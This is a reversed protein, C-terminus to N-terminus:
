FSLSPQCTAVSPRVPSSPQVLRARANGIFRGMGDAAIETIGFQPCVMLRSAGSRNLPMMPSKMAWTSAPRQGVRSGRAMDAEMVPMRQHHLCPGPMCRSSKILTRALDRGSEAAKGRPRNKARDGRWRDVARHLDCEITALGKQDPRVFLGNTTLACDCAVLGAFQVLDDVNTRNLLKRLSASFM